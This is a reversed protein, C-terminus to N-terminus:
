FYYLVFNLTIKLAACSSSSIFHSCAPYFICHIVLLRAYYLRSVSKVLEFINIFWPLQSTHLQLSREGVYLHSLNNCRLILLEHFIRVDRQIYTHLQLNDRWIM